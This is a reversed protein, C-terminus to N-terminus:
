SVVDRVLRLLLQRLLRGLLTLLLARQLAADGLQEMAHEVEMSGCEDILLARHQVENRRWRPNM